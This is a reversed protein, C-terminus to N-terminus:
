GVGAARRQKLTMNFKREVANAIDDISQGPQSYINFTNNVVSSSNSTTGSYGNVGYNSGAISGAMAVSRNNTGSLLSNAENASAYIDSMDVVPRVTPTFEFSGDLIGSLIALAPSIATIMEDGMYEMADTTYGVNDEVGKAAGEPIYAAWKAYLKSPSQIQNYSTFRNIMRNSMYDVANDVIYQNDYIGQAIGNIIYYSANKFNYYQGEIARVAYGMTTNISSTVWSAGNSIGTSIAKAVNTSANNFKSVSSNITTICDSLMKNIAMTSKTSEETFANSFTEALAKSVDNFGPKNTEVVKVLDKMVQELANTAEKGHDLLVVAMEKAMAKLKGTANDPIALISDVILKIGEGAALIGAGATLCAAGLIAFGAAFAEAVLGLGALAAVSIALVELFKIITEQDVDDLQHLGLAFPYLALGLAALAISGALLGVSALGLAVGGAALLIMAPGILAFGAAIYLLDIGAVMNLAVGLVLLAAAGIIGLTMAVCGVGLVVLALGLALLPDVLGMIDLGQLMQLAIALVILGAAAIVISAAVLVLAAGVAVAALAIPSLLALAVAMALIITIFALLGQMLNDLPILSLVVLAATIALIAVGLLVLAAAAVIVGASMASLVALAAVSFLLVALFAVFGQILQDQPIAGFIAIAAALITIALAMEIMATGAALMKGGSALSGLVALAITLAALTGAMYLFGQGITNPDMKSFIYIVGALIAIALAMQIVGRITASKIKFATVVAMFGLLIAMMGAIALLGIGIQKLDLDAVTKLAFSLILVAAAIKILGTIASSKMKGEIGSIMKLSLILEGMATTVALLAVSLKNSDVSALVVLAAALIAVAIAINKLAESNIKNTFGQLAGGVKELVGNIGDLFGGLGNKLTDLFSLIPNDGGLGSIAKFGLFGALGAGVMKFMDTGIGNGNFVSSFVEKIKDIAKKIGDGIHIIHDKLKNWLEKIKEIKINEEIFEKVADKAKRLWEVVPKIYDTINNLVKVFTNNEKITNRLNTLWDGFSAATDFIGGSMKSLIPTLKEKIVNYLAKIFMVGIDIVSFLGKLIRKFKELAEESPKLSLAFQKFKVTLEILREVTMPPFIDRFAEKITSIITLVTSGLSYFGEMLIKRGDLIVTKGKQVLKGTEDYYDEIPGKLAVEFNRWDRLLDNRENGGEAFVEYMGNALDTWLGKAEQYNGFILEFTNMWGTSVADQTAAIAEQFTKAEQAAKFSERGLKYEAGALEEIVGKLEPVVEGTKEYADIAQLLETATYNTEKSVEGLRTAFEGYQNLTKMLVKSSFWGDSLQTNFQEATFLHGQLTKYMGDATQTLTGEAVATALVTDKFERTAMNANEISKWDMLKVSGVALAQSLNYMARGAEGVNAGSKAAWTSIGEMATVADELKINNSTFKGINNVMDLFSYSTEDTFWNLKSLQDSVFAMQAGTDNWDKATASMITQVASTKEAYKDWGANVQDISLSKVLQPIKNALNIVSDTIRRIVQDAVTGLVSFKDSVVALLSDVSTLGRSGETLELSKDLRDLTGISQNANKEFNTNDFRMELIREEITKSM